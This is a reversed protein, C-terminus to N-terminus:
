CSCRGAPRSRGPPAPNTSQARSQARPGAVEQEEAAGEEAMGVVSPTPRASPSASASASASTAARVHEVLEAFSTAANRGSTSPMVYAAVGGFPEPQLGPVARRDVAVRWGALGVFLVLGPRLREALRRVRAAGEVYEMPDIDSAAPTARKVLDTMGVGDVDLAAVPDRPQTVLGTETVARWFRNTAGAYGFGADAAVVSPNLGCVLVRMGPGVTDALTRARRAAVDWGADGGDVSELDFGAGTVVDAVFGPEWGAHRPRVHITLRTGVGVSRHVRALAMPALDAPVDLQCVESM